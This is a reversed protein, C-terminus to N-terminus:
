ESKKVTIFTDYIFDDCCHIISRIYQFYTKYKKFDGKWVFKKNLSKTFDIALYLDFLGYEKTTEIIMKEILARVEPNTIHISDRKFQKKELEYMFGFYINVASQLNAYNTKFEEHIKAEEESLVSNKFLADTDIAQKEYLNEAKIILILKVIILIFLVLFISGFVYCTIQSAKNLQGLVQAGAIMLIIGIVLFAAVALFGLFNFFGNKFKAKREKNKDM